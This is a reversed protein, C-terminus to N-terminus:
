GGAAEDLKRAASEMIPLAFDVLARAPLLFSFAGGIKASRVSMSTEIFEDVIHAFFRDSWYRIGTSSNYEVVDVWQKSGDALLPVKIHVVRKDPVSSIAEAYHLLTVNDHDSGILLVKGSLQCLKDLPSGEGLGNNLPHDATIWDAKAGVATMRASVSRSSVADLRSRFFEAIIGFERNARATSPDFLPCHELIFQEDSPSYIGRGLDDFPSECGTYVLMTGAATITELIADILVDPGGLVNGVARMSAHVMVADGPLLGIQRFEQLLQTKNLKTVETAMM